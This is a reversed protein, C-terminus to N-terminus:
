SPMEHSEVTFKCCDMEYAINEKPIMPAGYSCYIHPCAVLNRLQQVTPVIDQAVVIFDKKGWYKLILDDYEYIGVMPCDVVEFDKEKRLEEM